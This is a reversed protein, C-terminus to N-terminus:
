SPEELLDHCLYAAERLVNEVVEDALPHLYRGIRAHGYLEALNERVLDQNEARRWEEALHLALALLDDGEARRTLDVLPRTDAVLKEVWIFPQRTAFAQHLTDMLEVTFDPRRLTYHLATRGELRVRVIVSRDGSAPLLQDLHEELRQRLVVEDDTEELPVALDLWRVTDTAVFELVMHDPAHARVVVCGRSGTERINRGQPTGPYVVAPRRHLVQHQHVHGLAMYDLGTALLDELKCPAYNDHGPQDGVNAHLLGIRPVDVRGEARYRGALNETVNRTPYSIGRIEAIMEGDRLVPQIELEPGFLTASAPFDLSSAWSNLPDHNGVAVFTRIGAKELRLLSDRFFFQARLSRDEGDFVDGAILLFDAQREICLNVINGFADFTARRLQEAITPAVQGLGQFPSDLHLDATHVFTVPKM